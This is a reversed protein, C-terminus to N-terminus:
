RVVMVSNEARQMVDTSVSGKFLRQWPSKATEAVVTVSYNKGLEVIHEAPDGVRVYSEKVKIKKATLLKRLKTLNDKAEDESEVDAAVTMISVPAHGHSVLFANKDLAANAHESGDTCLLHGRHEDLQRAVLVPCPAHAVVKEAVAPDWFSMSKRKRWRESAGLIILDYHAVETQEIIGDPINYAVKL